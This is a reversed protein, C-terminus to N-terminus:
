ITHENWLSSLSLFFFFESIIVYVTWQFKCIERYLANQHQTIRERQLKRKAVCKQPYLPTPVVLGLSSGPTRSLKTQRSVLNCFSNKSSVRELYGTRRVHGPVNHTPLLVNLLENRVFLWTIKLFLEFRKRQYGHVNVIITM